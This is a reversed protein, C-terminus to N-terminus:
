EAASQAARQSPADEAELQARAAQKLMVRLRSVGVDHQYLMERKRADDPMHELM